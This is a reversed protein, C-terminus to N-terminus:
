IFTGKWQRELRMKGRRTWYKITVPDNLIDDVIRQGQENVQQKNGTTEPFASGKRSGHKQNARGAKSYEGGDDAPDIDRAKKSWTSIDNQELKEIKAGPPYKNWSKRALRVEPLTKGPLLSKADSYAGLTNAAIDGVAILREVDSMKEWDRALEKGRAVTYAAGAATEALKVLRGAMAANKVLVGAKSIYGL